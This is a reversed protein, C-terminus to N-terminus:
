DVACDFAQLAAVWDQPPVRYCIATPGVRETDLTCQASLSAFQPSGHPVGVKAQGKHETSFSEWGEPLYELVHAHDDHLCHRVIIWQQDGSVLSGPLSRRPRPEFKEALRSPGHTGRAHKREGRMHRTSILVGLRLRASLAARASQACGSMM